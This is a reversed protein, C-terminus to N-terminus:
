GHVDTAITLVLQDIQESLDADRAFQLHRVENDPGDDIVVRIVKWGDSRRIDVVVDVCRGDDAPHACCYIVQGTNSSGGAQGAAFGRPTLLPDLAEVIRGLPAASDHTMQVAQEARGASRQEPTNPDGACPCKRIPLESRRQCCSM